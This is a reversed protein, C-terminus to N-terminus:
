RTGAAALGNSRCSCCLCFMLSSMWRRLISSSGTPASLVYMGSFSSLMYLSCVYTFNYTLAM